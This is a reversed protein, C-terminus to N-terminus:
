HKVVTTLNERRSRGRTTRLLQVASAITGIIAIVILAAVFTQFTDSTLWGIIRRGYVLALVSEASFRLLRMLALTVFFRVRSVDLAGCTLVFPTFPFPPPILAPIAMAIAGKANVRAKVRKLRRASMCLKLGAEGFRKGIWFTIMSGMVSGGTALLPYLWFFAPKRASLIIVVMDIAFPLFFLMSADLFGLGFAGWPSLFYSFLNFFFRRM